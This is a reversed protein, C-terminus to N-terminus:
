TVIRKFKKEIEYKSMSIITPRGHPCHYPNELTLLEDILEKAELMSLKTNGKVASKCAMSALKSYIVDPAGKVPGDALEDLVEEFLQKEDCGYLDLPVARIAFENGGFEEIEFGLGAFSDQYEELIGRNRSNLTLIIPPNLMQSPVEKEQLHKMLREFKVKEHAAHQDIIFLKDQFAVLWYTDFIQGLIRHEKVTERSLLKDTFLEMQVPNEIIPNEVIIQPAGPQVANQQPAVTEETQTPVPVAQPKDGTSTFFADVESTNTNEITEAYEQPDPQAVVYEPSSEAVFFSDEEEKPLLMLAKSTINAKPQTVPIMREPLRSKEFPEPADKTLAKKEAEVAISHEKEDLVVEPILEKGRLAESISRSMMDYFEMQRIFRIEMKSPHVNVDIEDAAIEISLVCFPYKHQMLFPKYAEEIARSVVASRIYRHNVFYIEFNRNSRNLEPKGVFGTIRIGQAECDVPLLNESIDRGYIRYIVEKLNGNGSTHFRTEKNMVFKFSIEPRSLALHEMLDAIYSGETAFSKLFKRRVPINYFLNRVMITTGDPAGVESFSTEKGGDIEYRTGIFQDPTKTVVEVRAVAAISSLAEGRFGLSTVHLLDEVNRIKSTAHRLFATRVQAAPIGNGNDTVRIFGVGGEQIEVTIADAGADMANEVLEKVVSVPREVVEGAAIKDITGPDLVAIEPM